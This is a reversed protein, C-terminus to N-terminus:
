SKYTGTTIELRHIYKGDKIARDVVWNKIALYDSKYKRGSSGKYNNLIDILLATNEKGHEKVLKDFEEQTLTVFEAYNTKEKISNEKLINRKREKGKREKIANGECHTRLANADGWRKIASERAKNSKNEREKLRELVSKSTFYNENFIFLDFDNIISAIRDCETRLEFAITEIDKLNIKGEQEYIIEVLCWYIGLGEMGYVRRLNLLKPDNRAFYDHSFYFVNKKM